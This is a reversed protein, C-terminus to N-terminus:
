LAQEQEACYSQWASHREAATIKRGLLQELADIQPLGKSTFHETNATELLDFAETITIASDVRDQVMAGQPHSATTTPAQKILLVADAKIAALQEPKLQDLPLINDGSQFVLGGRRYGSHRTNKITITQM